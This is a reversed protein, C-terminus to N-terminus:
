KSRYVWYFLGMQALAAVLLLVRAAIDKPQYLIEWVLMGMIMGASISYTKLLMPKLDPLEEM